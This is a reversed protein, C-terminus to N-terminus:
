VKNIFLGDLSGNISKAPLSPPNTDIDTAHNSDEIDGISQLLPMKYGKATSENENNNSPATSALSLWQNHYQEFDLAKTWNILSQDDEQNEIDNFIVNWGLQKEKGIQSTGISSTEVILGEKLDAWKLKEKEEDKSSKGISYLQKMWDLQRM